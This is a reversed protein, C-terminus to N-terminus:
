GRRRERGAHRPGPRGPQDVRDPRDAARGGGGRARGGPRAGAVARGAAGRHPGAARARPDALRRRAARPAHRPGRPDARRGHRLRRLTRDNADHRTAATGQTGAAMAGALLAAAMIWGHAHGTFAAGALAPALTSVALATLVAPRRALRRWDAWALVFAPSLGPAFAALRPWPRSALRRGRWHRDEAIWTLLPVNLFAAAMLTTGARASDARVVGAPFHPLMRRVLLPALGAAVAVAAILGFTGTSLVAFRGTVVRSVGALRLGWRESGSRRPM